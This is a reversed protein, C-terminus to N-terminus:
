AVIVAIEVHLANVRGHGRPDKGAQDRQESSGRKEVVVRLRDRDGFWLEGRCLVHESLAFVPDAGDGRRCTVMPKVGVRHRSPEGRDSSMERCRVKSRFDL